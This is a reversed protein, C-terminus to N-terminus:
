KPGVIRRILAAYECIREPAPLLKKVIEREMCKEMWAKLLPLQTDWPIKFNGIGQYADFWSMFPIFVIDVFGFERGGFYPGEVGSMDRLAGELLELSRLMDRNAEEQAEGKTRLIRFGSDYFQLVFMKLM